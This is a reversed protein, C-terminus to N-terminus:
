ILKIKEYKHSFLQHKYLYRQILIHDGFDESDTFFIYNYPTDKLTLCLVEHQLEELILLSHTTM